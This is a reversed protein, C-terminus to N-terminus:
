PSRQCRAAPPPHSGWGPGRRPVGAQGRPPPPAGSQHTVGARGRQPSGTQRAVPATPHHPPTLLSSANSHWPTTHQKSATETVGNGKGKRPPAREGHTSSNHPTSTKLRQTCAPLDRTTGARTRETCLPTPPTLTAGHEAGYLWSTVSCPGAQRRGGERGGEAAVTDGRGGKGGGWMGMCGQKHRVSGRQLTSVCTVMCGWAHGMGWGMTGLHHLAPGQPVHAARHLGLASGPHVQAALLPALLANSPADGQGHVHALQRRGHGGQRVWRLHAM